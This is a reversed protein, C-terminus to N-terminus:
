VIMSPNPWRHASTPLWWALAGQEAILDAERLVGAVAEPLEAAAVGDLLPGIASLSPADDLTLIELTGGRRDRVEVFGPGRRFLCMCPLYRERWEQAVAEDAGSVTDPPFLHVFRRSRVCGDDCSATWSVAAGLATLERILILAHVDQAPADACLRVPEALRVCRGGSRYLEAASASLPARLVTSGLDSGPVRRTGHGRWTEVTIRIASDEDTETM